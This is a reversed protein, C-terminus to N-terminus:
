TFEIEFYGEDNAEAGFDTNQLMVTAYALPQNNNASDYVYGKITKAEQAYSVVGFLLAAALFNFKM